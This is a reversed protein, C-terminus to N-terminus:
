ICNGHKFIKLKKCKEKFLVIHLEDIKEDGTLTSLIEIITEVKIAEHLQKIMDVIPFSQTFETGFYTFSVILNRM